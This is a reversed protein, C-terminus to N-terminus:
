LDNFQVNAIDIAEFLAKAKNFTEAVLKEFEILKKKDM